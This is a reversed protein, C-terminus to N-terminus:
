RQDPRKEKEREKVLQAELLKREAEEAQARARLATLELERLDIERSASSITGAPNTELFGASRVDSADAGSAVPVSVSVPGYSSPYYTATIWISGTSHGTGSVSRANFFYSYAGAGQPYIRRIHFNNSYSGAPSTSNEYAWQVAYGVPAASVPNVDLWVNSATGSAHNLNIYGGSEVVIYGDAPISITISDVAQTTGATLFIGFGYGGHAAIGPENLMEAASVADDPLMTSSDGGPSFVRFKGQFYGAYDLPNNDAQGYVSYNVAGGGARGWVGYNTGLGGTVGGVTGYYGASGTPFSLGRSGVWGGIFEGGVGWFDQPVSEGHVAQVDSAGSGTAQAHLVRVSFHVSDTTYRGAYAGHGEVRLKTQPDPTATGIAVNGYPYFVDFGQSQWPALSFASAALQARPAFTITGTIGPGALAAVELYLLQYFLDPLPSVSGLRVSFVGNSVTVGAQTETWLAVGGAFVNFLDFQLNYSGDSAPTGSSTTLLGQYSIEKPFPIFGANGSAATNGSTTGSQGFLAHVACLLMAFTLTTFSKM